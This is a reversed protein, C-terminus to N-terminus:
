MCINCELWIELLLLCPGQSCMKVCTGSVCTAFCIHSCQVGHWYEVTLSLITTFVSKHPIAFDLATSSYTRCSGVCLGQQMIVLLHPSSIIFCPLSYHRSLVTFNRVPRHHPLNHLQCFQLRMQYSPQLSPKHRDCQRRHRRRLLTRRQHELGGTGAEGLGRLHREFSASNIM